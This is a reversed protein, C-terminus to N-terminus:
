PLAPAVSIVRVPADYRGLKADGTVLELKEVLAQGILARDFPDGHHPPLGGAISGHESRFDLELWGDRLLTKRVANANATLNTRPLAAKIAIEWISIASFIPQVDPDDLEATLAPPLREPADLVWLLIQTDALLTTMPPDSGQRVM